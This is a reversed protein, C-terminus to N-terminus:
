KENRGKKTKAKNAPNGKRKDAIQKEAKAGKLRGPSAM